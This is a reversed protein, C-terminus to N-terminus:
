VVVDKLVTLEIRNSYNTQYNRYQRFKVLDLSLCSKLYLIVDEGEHTQSSTRLRWSLIVGLLIVRWQEM